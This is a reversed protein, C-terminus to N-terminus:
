RRPAGSNVLSGSSGRPGRSLVFRIRKFGVVGPFRWLSSSLGLAPGSHVLSHVSSGLPAASHVLRVRIFGVVMPSRRFSGFWGSRCRHCPRILWAFQFSGSSGLPARSYDAASHVFCDRIVGVVRFAYVFSVSLVRRGSHDLCASHVSFVRIFGVVVPARWLM